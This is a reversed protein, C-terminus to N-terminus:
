KLRKWRGDAIKDIRGHQKWRSILSKIASTGVSQGKRVRSSLQGAEILECTYTAAGSVHHLRRVQQIYSHGLKRCLGGVFFQARVYPVTLPLVVLTLGLGFPTRILLLGCKKRLFNYSRLLLKVIKTLFKVNRGDCM